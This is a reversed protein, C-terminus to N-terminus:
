ARDAVLVRGNQLSRRHRVEVDLEGAPQLLDVDTRVVYGHRGLLRALQAPKWASRHPEAALPDPRRALTTLARVTLRGLRASLAPAQYNVVLSSGPASLEGIAQVTATVESRTLYPVVGEWVWTTPRVPDHGAAALAEELPETSLDVPVFRVSRAVTTLGGLRSRKDRQSAPHDVEFVASGALEPMRWARGDLGAGVIVVQEAPRARVADDIAVTRPVVVEACARVMEVELRLRWDSPVDGSRIRQVAALEAGSLMVAASPDAFRGIAVRGDGAARGQCVM